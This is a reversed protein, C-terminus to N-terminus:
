LQSPAARPVRQGARFQVYRGEKLIRELKPTRVGRPFELRAVDVGTFLGCVAGAHADHYGASTRGAYIREEVGPVTELIILRLADAAPAPLVPLGGGLLIPITAIELQDVLGLALFSKLLEGGGFPWLDRGPEARLARVTEAPSRAVTVGRCDEQRLTSSFVVVAMGPM